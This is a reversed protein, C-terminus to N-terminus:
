YECACEVEEQVKGCEAIRQRVAPDDQLLLQEAQWAADRLGKDSFRKAPALMKRWGEGMTIFAYQGEIRCPYIHLWYGRGGSIGRSYSVEVRVRKDPTDTLYDRLLQSRM